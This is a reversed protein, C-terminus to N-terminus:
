DHDAELEGSIDRGDLAERGRAAIQELTISSGAAEAREHALKASSMPDLGLKERAKVATRECTEAYGTYALPKGSEPDLVGHDDAYVRLLQCKAEAISWARLAAAFEVGALDPRVELLQRELDEAVPMVVRSSTAGHTLEVRENGSAPIGSKDGKGVGGAPIGSGVRAGLERVREEYKRRNAARNKHGAM